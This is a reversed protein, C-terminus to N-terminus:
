LGLATRLFRDSDSLLRSRAAATDLQHDLEPFEVYTVQKGAARLRDNMLRSQGVGVNLDTDGHILLVPAQFSAAHQAPSGAQVHPGNGVQSERLYRTALDREDTKLRELDTVPAVAIVAKFLSPDLVQSQLAAYGGYSWGFIALKGPAAIGQDLLWRGASNVDGVATEWSQYGNEQFWEAGFGASGRYNPQLVAFGRAVFYQSLWDFGWEDRAAPGGHPMVIAPLNKGNSGPPLTLYAPIMTGDAAPYQVAKMEGMTIGALEPRAATIFALQKTAKDYLYYKGPDTDSGAFVILKGEDATSDIFSIQRGGLARSLASAIVKLEPDFFEFQRRDTAYTAGVIRQNRGIRILGDVDAGDHALVLTKTGTGDLAMKYLATYQGDSDFGYAVNEDADVAIPDFGISLGNSALTVTSLPSWGGGGQPRFQYHYEGELYGSERRPATGMVRVNGKGDTAYGFATGRPSEVRRRVLTVVDVAEVALGSESRGTLNGTRAEESVDRTLLVGEPNGPVNYDIIGGGDNSQYFATSPTRASLQEMSKGDATLVVLRTAADVDQNRGERLYIACVLHTEIVFQCGTIQETIGKAGLIGVPPGSDIPVVVANEGGNPLPAVLVVSRGEPSIGLDIVSERAGFKAALPEVSQATATAGVVALALVATSAALHSKTM